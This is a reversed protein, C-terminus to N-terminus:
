LVHLRMFEKHMLHSRLFQGCDSYHAAGQVARFVVGTEDVRPAIQEIAV